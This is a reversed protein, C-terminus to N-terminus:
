IQQLPNLKDQLQKRLLIVNPDKLGETVKLSRNAIEPYEPTRAEVEALAYNLLASAQLDPKGKQKFRTIAELYFQRGEDVNNKRFAYLGLTAQHFIDRDTGDKIKLRSIHKSAGPVDGARLLAYCLNNYLGVDDPNILLGRKAIDVGLEPRGANSAICSGVNFPYTSYPEELEWERATSMAEDIKLEYYKIWTTAELSRDFKLVTSERMGPLRNRLVWEAHTIVNDSPNEWALRFQKRAKKDNGADLELSGSSEFLESFDFLENHSINRPLFKKMDPLKRESIIAVNIETAKIWPDFHDKSAKNVYYFARDFDNLHLFLRVGCRVIYRDHPALQLAIMAARKAKEKQGKITFARSLEIWGIASRHYELLWKRLKSIRVDVESVPEANHAVNLIKDALKISLTDVGGRDAIFAAMNHSLQNDGIIIGAGM